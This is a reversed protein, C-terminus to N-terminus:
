VGDKSEFPCAMDENKNCKVLATAHQMLWHRAWYFRTMSTCYLLTFRKDVYRCTPKSDTAIIGEVTNWYQVQTSIPDVKSAPDSGSQRELSVRSMCQCDIDRLGITTWPCSRIQRDTTCRSWLINSQNTSSYPTLPYSRVTSTCVGALQRTVARLTGIMMIM